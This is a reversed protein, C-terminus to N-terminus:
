IGNIKNNTTTVILHANNLNRTIHSAHRCMEQPLRQWVTHQKCKGHITQWYRMYSAMRWWMTNKLLPDRDTQTMSLITHM